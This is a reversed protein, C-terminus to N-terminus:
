TSHQTRSLISRRPLSPIVSRGMMKEAGIIRDSSAPLFVCVLRTASTLNSKSWVRFLARRLALAGPPCPFVHPATCKARVRRKAKFRRRPVSKWIARHRGAAQSPFGALAPEDGLPDRAFIVRGKMFDFPHSLQASGM